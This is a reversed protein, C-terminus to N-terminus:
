DSQRFDEGRVWGPPVGERHAREELAEREARASQLDQKAGTCREAEEREERRKRSGDGPSRNIHDNVCGAVQQTLSAIREDIQRTQERWGAEAAQEAELRSAEIAKAGSAPSESARAPPASPESMRQYSGGEWHALRAIERFSDPVRKLDDTYHVVGDATTWVWIEREARAQLSALQTLFLAIACATLTKRM